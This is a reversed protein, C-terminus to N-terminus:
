ELAALVLLRDVQVAALHDEGRRVLADVAEALAQQPDTRDAERLQALRARGVGRRPEEALDKDLAAEERRAVQPVAHLRVDLLDDAREEGVVGPHHEEELA